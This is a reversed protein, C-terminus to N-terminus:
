PSLTIRFPYVDDTRTDPDDEGVPLITVILTRTGGRALPVRWSGAGEGILVGDSEGDLGPVAQVVYRVAATTEPELTVGVDRTGPAAVLDLYVNGLMMPAPSPSITGSSIPVPISAVLADEPFMAGEEFHKGDDREGTYWRWRAFEIVSDPFGIGAREWLIDDLADEFDPENLTPDTSAGPPNRMNLWMESAFSFDGDFFRDNVYLFYLVAGYMYWTRYNDNRDLSWNPRGQFDFLLGMYENDDDFVADEILTSTMEFVIPSDWWDDSAQCAHNLEHALTSDLIEGGYDGWPDVVMYSSYDDYPTELNPAVVDAYCTNLGKWLFVDFRGDPGCQGRDDLPARFGLGETEITWSTDLYSLVEEAMALEGEAHYHIIIPQNLSEISYPWLGPQECPRAHEPIPEPTPTDDDDTPCQSVGGCLTLLGLLALGQLLLRWGGWPVHRGDRWHSRQWDYEPGVDAMRRM